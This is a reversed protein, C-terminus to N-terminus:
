VHYVLFVTRFQLHLWRVLKGKTTTKNELQSFGCSSSVFMETTSSTKLILFPKLLVRVEECDSLRTSQQKSDVFYGVVGSTSENHCM